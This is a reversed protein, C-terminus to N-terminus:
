CIQESTHFIAEPDGVQKVSIGSAKGRTGRGESTVPIKVAVESQGSTLFFALTLTSLPLFYLSKEKGEAEQGRSERQSHFIRPEM